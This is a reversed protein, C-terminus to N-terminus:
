SFLAKPRILRSKLSYWRSIHTNNIFTSRKMMQKKAVIV